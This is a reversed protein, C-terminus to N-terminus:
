RRIEYYPVTRLIPHNCGPPHFYLGDEGLLEGHDATVVIKKGPMNQILRRVETFTWRVNEAYMEHLDADTYKSTYHKQTSSKLGATNRLFHIARVIPQPLKLIRKVIRKRLSSQKKAVLQSLNETECKYPTHPQMYHVIMRRSTINQLAMDTVMKPDITGNQLEGHAWADVVKAVKKKWDIGWVVAQSNIAPHGSIYTLNYKAKPFNETLWHITREAGKAKTLKGKPLYKKYHKQFYDYRCADLIVAVEWDKKMLNLCMADVRLLAEARIPGADATNRGKAPHSLSGRVGLVHRKLYNKWIVVELDVDKEM